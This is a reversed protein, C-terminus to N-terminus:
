STIFAIKSQHGATTNKTHDIVQSPFEPRAIMYKKYIISQLILCLVNTSCSM